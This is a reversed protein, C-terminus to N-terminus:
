EGGRETFASDTILNGIDDTEVFAAGREYWSLASIANDVTYVAWSWPGTPLSTINAPVRKVDVFLLDPEVETAALLSDRDCSELILGRTFDRAERLPRQVEIDFSILSCRGALPMLIPVLAKLVCERGFRELSIRKLEAFLHVEPHNALLAVVSELTPIKESAFRDGLRDFEGASLEHLSELSLDGVSGAAGTCRKLDRDHFLVPVGDASLQLDLEIYRAGQALAAGIGVLTNEPYRAPWGRHAVLNPGSM